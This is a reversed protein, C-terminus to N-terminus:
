RAPVPQCTRTATAPRAAPRTASCSPADGAHEALLQGVVGGEHLQGDAGYLAAMVLASASAGILALTRLGVFKHHLHRNLGIMAGILAASGVRGVIEMWELTM